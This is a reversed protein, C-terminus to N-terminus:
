DFRVFDSIADAQLTQDTTFNTASCPSANPSSSFMQDDLFNKWFNESSKELL